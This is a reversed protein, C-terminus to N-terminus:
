KLPQSLPCLAAWHGWPGWSGGQPGVNWPCRGLIGLILDEPACPGMAPGMPGWIKEPLSPRAPPGRALADKTMPRPPTRVWPIYFCVSPILELCLIVINSLFFIILKNCLSLTVNLIFLRLKITEWLPPPTIIAIIAAKLLCYM